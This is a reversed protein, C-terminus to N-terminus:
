IGDNFIGKIRNEMSDKMFCSKMLKIQFIFTEPRDIRVKRATTRCFTCNGCQPNHKKFYRVRNSRWRAPRLRGYKHWNYKGMKISFKNM